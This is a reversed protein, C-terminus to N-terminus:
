KERQADRKTGESHIGRVVGEVVIELPLVVRSVASAAHRSGVGNNVESARRRLMEQLNKQSRVSLEGHKLIQKGQSKMKM